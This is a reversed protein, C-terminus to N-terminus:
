NICRSISLKTTAFSPKTETAALLCSVSLAVVDEPVVRRKALVGTGVDSM